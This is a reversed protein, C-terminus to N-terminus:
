GGAALKNNLDIITDEQNKAEDEMAAFDKESTQSGVLAGINEAGHKKQQNKIATTINQDYRDRLKEYLYHLADYKEIWRKKEWALSVSKQKETELQKVVNDKDKLLQRNREQLSDIKNKFKVSETESKQKETELQKVVNDKDELLQRNREQLSDIKNKITVSETQSREIETKLKLEMTNEYELLQDLIEQLTNCDKGLKEYELATKDESPPIITLPSAPSPQSLTEPKAPEAESPEGEESPPIITLPSAPSPQPLTEPKAPEAESPEGESPPIITLPSAPSPTSTYREPKDGVPMALYSMAQHDGPVVVDVNLRVVLKNKMDTITDEQYKAEDEMAVVDKDLKNKMDTITDEQYKAEDEM